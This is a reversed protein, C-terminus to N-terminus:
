DEIMKLGILQQRTEKVLSSICPWALSGLKSGPPPINIGYIYRLRDCNNNIKANNRPQWFRSAPDPTHVRIHRWQCCGKRARAHKIYYIANASNSSGRLGTTPRSFIETTISGFFHKSGGMVTSSTTFPRWTRKSSSQTM